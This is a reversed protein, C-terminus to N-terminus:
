LTDARDFWRLPRRNWRSLAFVSWEESPQYGTVHQRTATIPLPAPTPTLTDGVTLWGVEDDDESRISLQIQAEKLHRFAFVFHTGSISTPFCNFIMMHKLGMINWKMLELMGDRVVSSREAVGLFAVETHVPQADEPMSIM